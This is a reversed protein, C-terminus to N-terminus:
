LKTDAVEGGAPWAPSLPVVALVRVGNGPTSEIEFTGGVEAMRERMSVLGFSGPRSAAPDFGVGDDQIELKLHDEARQMRVSIHRAAPM